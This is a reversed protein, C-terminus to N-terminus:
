PNKVRTLHHFHYFTQYKNYIITKLIIKFIKKFLVCIENKNKLLKKSIKM